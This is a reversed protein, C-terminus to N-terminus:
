SGVAVLASSAVVAAVVLISAAWALMSFKRANAGRAARLQGLYTRAIEDLVDTDEMGEGTRTADIFADMVDLEVGHFRFLLAGGLALAFAALAGGLAGVCLWKALSSDTLDPLLALRDVWIGFLTVLAFDATGVALARTELSTKRQWEKAYEDAVYAVAAKMGDTTM